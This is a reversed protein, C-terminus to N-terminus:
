KWINAIFLSIASAQTGVSAASYPGAWALGYLDGERDNTWVSQANDALYSAYPGDSLLVNLEALNRTFIGKFAQQNNDCGGANPECGYEYLIGNPSLVSGSAIVADAIDRAAALYAENNTAKYLEALGGLVVGQNYSWETDGNNTCNDTLGDNILNQTNIMGSNNFWTWAAQAKDLYETDGPIRNHLSATLKFYLENSIANKYSLDPIDWIVGGGCTNNWYSYIYAEDLEAIDLYSSNGTIDYLRVLALAWRNIDEINVVTKRHQSTKPPNGSEGALITPATLVFTVEERRGGLCPALSSKYPISRWPSISPIM